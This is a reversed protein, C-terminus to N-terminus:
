CITDQYCITFIKLNECYTNSLDKLMKIILGTVINKQYETGDIYKKIRAATLLLILIHM